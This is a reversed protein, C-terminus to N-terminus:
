ASRGRGVDDRRALREAQHRRCSGIAADSDDSQRQAASVSREVADGSEGEVVDDRELHHEVVSRCHDGVLSVFGIQEPRQAAAASVEAHDGTHSHAQM